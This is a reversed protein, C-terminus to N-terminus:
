ARVITNKMFGFISTGADDLCDIEISDEFRLYPTVAHGAGLIEVARKEMLCASGRDANRNAVTGCSIISGAGVDRTRAVHELLKPFDFEHDHHAWPNGILQGNVKVEIQRALMAGTWFKGLTEPTVAIPSFVKLPKGQVIGLGKTMEPIQVARLSVDNLIVVLKMHKAADVAATGMPVDDTIVAVSPELDIDWNDDFVPIPGTPAVFHNSTGQWVGPEYYLQPPLVRGTSARTRELHVLYSSGECWQYARPLPCALATIDLPLGKVRGSNLDVSIAELRPALVAWDDLVSQMTPAIEGVKIYRRSDSSVVILVGDRGSNISALKM